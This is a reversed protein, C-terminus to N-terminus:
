AKIPYLSYNSGDPPAKGLWWQVATTEQTTLDGPTVEAYAMQCGLEPVYFTLGEVPIPTEVAIAAHGSDGTSLLVLAVRYGLRYLIAACLNAHDECDGKMDVLM